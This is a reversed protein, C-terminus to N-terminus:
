NLWVGLSHALSAEYVAAAVALDEIGMGMPNLYIMEDSSERGSKRGAVVEGLEAYVDGRSLRGAQVLRHLLKEERNSQDFDDVVIKDAALILEASADDLSLAVILRKRGVMAPTLYGKDAGSTALVVVSSELLCDDLSTCASVGGASAFEAAASAARELRPDYLLVREVQDRNCSLIARIVEVGIPGAGLVGVRHLEQGALYQLGISAVAATRRASLTACEMIALPFGTEICNLIYIGSARPLGRDVNAPFGSIWKIGAASIGGGLYAPMAIFRGCDYEKARGAPRIYPKLPQQFDGSAHCTLALRVADVALAPTLVGAVM